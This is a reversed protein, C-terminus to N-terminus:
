EKGAEAKEVTVNNQKANRGQRQVFLTAQGVGEPRVRAAGAVGELAVQENTAIEAWAGVQPGYAVMAELIESTPSGPYFSAYQVGAELAARVMAENSMMFAVGPEPKLIAELTM